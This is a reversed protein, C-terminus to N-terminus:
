LGNNNEKNKCELIKMWDDLRKLRKIKYKDVLKSDKIIKRIQFCYLELDAIKEAVKEEETPDDIYSMLYTITESCIKIARHIQLEPGFVRLAKLLIENGENKKM